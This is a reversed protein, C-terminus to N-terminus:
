KRQGKAHFQKYNNPKTTNRESRRPYNEEAAARGPRREAGETRSINGETDLSPHHQHSDEQPPPLASLDNVQSTIVTSPSLPMPVRPKKTPALPPLQRFAHSRTLSPGSTAYRRSCPHFPPKPAPPKHPIQLSYQIPSDDWDLDSSEQDSTPPSQNRDLHQSSDASSDPTTDTSSSCTSDENSTNFYIPGDDDSDQDETIWGHKKKTTTMAANVTAAIKQRAHMAAKRRPPRGDVDEQSRLQHDMSPAAILEDPMARYLRTNLSSQLKRILISNPISDDIDEVIYLDRPTNKDAGNRLFVLDGINFKKDPTRKHTRLKSKQSHTSSTSRNALLKDIIKDKSVDIDHNTLMDRKFLIEGPSFGNARIRANINRLVLHLETKTIPGKKQTFRLIEKQVEKVTNEAVPNKNKNLLRGVEINIKLKNLLSGNTQAERALSQFGTAGDVRIVTGSDPLIDLCMSLIAERLSDATQDTIITGKVFQSMKERLILIKQTNREIVDAAFHTALGQPPSTSDELLVKPLPRLTACQHCQLSVEDVVARWGPTYFYRGVLSTLQARSPHDLKIHLANIVGPFLSPPISIVAGNLCGEPVKVMILDDNDIFLKGQTYLNHLLKLKTFDGKRKKSEPLQQTLILDSLKCHIPDHKQINKWVKRQTMPMISTGSKIDEITVQRIDAANDGIHEWERVFSCIQCRPSSCKPPHRSAYDSTHLTKGPKYRLEVPLASLGTLFSAIRSSSSFAGRQSRKWAMVCPQSDTFHITVSNSERIHHQFHELVLRIGCAEGECPLWASKRKALVASYFGGILEETSTGNKRLIILRGGIANNEASYDSFTHLEDGPRPEAIGVPHSALAKAAEFSKDLEETWIIRTASKQGGVVQELAHITTAYHPM